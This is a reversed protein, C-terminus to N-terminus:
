DEVYPRLVAKWIIYGAANMHLKDELFLSEIVNGNEDLMPTWVDAFETLRTRKAYKRLRKNLEEYEERLHWRSVSPKPSIFIVPVGPLAKKISKRLTKAEKLISKVSEGAAIDNDGEYIFIKSPKYPFIVREQYYILDTFDSGGFGRNIVEHDPFYDAMDQWMTISSSGTFLIAGEAPPNVKDKEEFKQITSEWREPNNQAHLDITLIILILLIFRYRM